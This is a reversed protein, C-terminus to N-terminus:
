RIKLAALSLLALVGAIIWFRIVIKPEAIGRHQFTHHIPARYFIRKGLVQIGLWDQIAVSALEALFIGGVLFFLAEQKLLIMMTGLMGGLAMSGTDGMFVEAPYSNFWLFGVGAGVVAGCFVAVEGAGPMMPFLLYQSLIANGFIYAYVGYVAYSFLAPVTSLGDLGDAFNVANAAYVIFFIIVLIYLWSLDMIPNKYFPVYLQSPRFPIKENNKLQVLWPKHCTAGRGYKQICIDDTHCSQKKHSSSIRKTQPEKSATSMRVSCKGRICVSHAVGCARSQCDTNRTCRVECTKSWKVRCTSAKGPHPVPTTSSSLFLVGFIVAYGIQLIYKAKRSLGKDSDRYKIKLFDDAAGIAAFWIGAFILYWIYPNSLDAWLFVAAFLSILILIGGMTPTGRKSGTSMETYDRVVDRIKYRYLLNIVHRGIMLSVLFSTLMAMITRFTIYRSLRAISPYQSALWDSLSYLM